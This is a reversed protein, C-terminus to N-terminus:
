TKGRSIAPGMTRGDSKKRPKAFQRAGMLVRKAAAPNLRTAMPSALFTQRASWSPSITFGIKLIASVPCATWGLSAQTPM